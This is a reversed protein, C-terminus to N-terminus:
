KSGKRILMVVLSLLQFGVCLGILAVFDTILNEKNLHYQDFLQESTEVCPLRTHNRCDGIKGVDKWQNVNLAEFAYRFWSLHELWRLYVPISRVNILFGGLTLVPLVFVALTIAKATQNPTLVSLFLGFSSGANAVLIVVGIFILFKLGGPDLGAMWYVISGSLIPYVISGPVEILYRAILYTDVNYLGIKREHRVLPLEYQLHVISSFLTDCSQLVIVVFFLAVVGQIGTQTHAIKFYTAGVLLSIVMVHLFQLQFLRLRRRLIIFHRWLLTTLQTCWDTNYMKKKCNGIREKVSSSRRVRAKFSVDQRQEYARWGFHSNDFSNCLGEIRQRCQKEMGPLLQLIHRFYDAPCYYASCTHGHLSFFDVASQRSGFYVCRGEALLMISDFLEYLQSSAREFSCVVTHGISALDKLEQLVNLAMATELGKTPEDHFLVPPNTLLETAISLRKRNEM